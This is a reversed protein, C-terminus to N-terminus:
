FGIRIRGQALATDLLGVLRRKVDLSRLILLADFECGVCQGANIWRRM